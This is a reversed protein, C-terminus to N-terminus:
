ISHTDLELPFTAIVVGLFASNFPMFKNLNQKTNTGM